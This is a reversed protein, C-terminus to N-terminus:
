ATLDYNQQGPTPYLREHALMQAAAWVYEAVHVLDLPVHM